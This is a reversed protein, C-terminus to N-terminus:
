AAQPRFSFGAVCLWGGNEHRTYLRGKNRGVGRGLRAACPVCMDAYIGSDILRGHVMYLQAALDRGCLDCIMPIEDHFIGMRYGRELNRGNLLRGDGDGWGEFWPTAPVDDHTFSCPIQEAASVSAQFRVGSGALKLRRVATPFSIFDRFVHYSASRDWVERHEVPGLSWVQVLYQGAAGPNYFEHYGYMLRVTMTGDYEATATRHKGSIFAIPNMHTGGMERLPWICRCAFATGSASLGTVSTSNLAAIVANLCAVEGANGSRMRCLQEVVTIIHGLMTRDADTFATMKLTADKARLHPSNASM